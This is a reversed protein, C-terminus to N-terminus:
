KGFFASIDFLFARRAGCGGCHTELGDFPRGENFLLSQRIVEYRGGCDPCPHDHLYRYEDEISGVTLPGVPAQEPAGAADAPPLPPKSM